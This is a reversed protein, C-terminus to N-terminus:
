DFDTPLTPNHLHEFWRAIQAATVRGISLDLGAIEDAGFWGVDGSEVNHEFITREDSVLECLFFAKYAHFVFAPHGHRNRDYLALLKVARVRYGTEEWVERVTSESASDGVDAWGGPLTWRLGDLKEQVLLIKEDRFVVGRVDTKPTAHGAQASFMDQIHTLMDVSGRENAASSETAANSGTAALIEAAIREIQQYREMDFPHNFQEAYYRGSQALAQLRRVWDLWNPVTM